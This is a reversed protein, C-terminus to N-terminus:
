KNQVSQMREQFYQKRVISYKIYKKGYYPTYSYIIAFCLFGKELLYFDIKGDCPQVTNQSEKPNLYFVEWKCSKSRALGPLSWVLPRLIAFILVSIACISIWHQQIWLCLDAALMRRRLQTSSIERKM